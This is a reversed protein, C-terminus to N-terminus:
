RDIEEASVSNIGVSSMYFGAVNWRCFIKKM